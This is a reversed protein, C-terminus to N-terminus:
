RAACRHHAGEQERRSGRHGGGERRGLGVKQQGQLATELLQIYTGGRAFATAGARRLMIITGQATCLKLLELRQVREEIVVAGAREGDVLHDHAGARGGLAPRQAAWGSRQSALRRGVTSDSARRGWGLRQGRPQRVWSRKSPTLM